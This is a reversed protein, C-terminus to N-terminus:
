QRCYVAPPERAAHAASRGAVHIGSDSLQGFGAPLPVDVSRGISGPFRCRTGALDIWRYQFDSAATAGGIAAVGHRRASPSDHGRLEALRQAAGPNANEQNMPSHPQGTLMFYGSSSHANDGTRMRAAPVFARGPAVDKAAVREPEHRSRDHCHATARWSSGVSSRAQSGLHFTACSRWVSVASHVVQCRRAARRGPGINPAISRAADARGDGARSHSCRAGRSEMACDFPGRSSPSCPRSRTCHTRAAWSRGCYVAFSHRAVRWFRRIRGWAM